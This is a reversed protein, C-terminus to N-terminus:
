LLFLHITENSVALRWDSVDFSSLKTPILTLRGYLNDLKMKRLFRYIKRAGNNGSNKSDPQNDNVNKPKKDLNRFSSLFCPFILLRCM